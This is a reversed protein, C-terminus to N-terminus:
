DFFEVDIVASKSAHIPDFEIAGRHPTCVKFVNGCDFIALVQEKTRFVDPLLQGIECTCVQGEHLWQLKHIRQSQSPASIHQAISTFVSEAQAPSSASPVFFDM